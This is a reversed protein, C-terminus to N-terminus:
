ARVKLENVVHTAAHTVAHAFSQVSSRPTLLYFQTESIKLIIVSMHEFATRAVSTDTFKESSLDLPCLRELVESSRSGSANLVVWADSQDTIWIPADASSVHSPITKNDHSSSLLWLQERQLGLLTRGASDTNTSDSLEAISRSGTAPLELSLTASLADAVRSSDSPSFGISLLRMDTMETLSIGDLNFSYDGLATVANLTQRAM